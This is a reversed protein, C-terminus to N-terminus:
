RLPHWSKVETKLLRDATARINAMNRGCLDGDSAQWPKNGRLYGTRLDEIQKLGRMMQAIEAPVPAALPPKDSHLLDHHDPTVGSQHLVANLLHTGSLMCAEVFMEYDDDRSFKSASREIRESRNIHEDIKM